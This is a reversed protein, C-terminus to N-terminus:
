YVLVFRPSTISKQPLNLIPIAGPKLRKMKSDDDLLLLFYNHVNQNNFFGATKKDLRAEGWHM